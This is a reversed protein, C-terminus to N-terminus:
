KKYAGNTLVSFHDDLLLWASDFQKKGQTTRDKWLDIWLNQQNTQNTGEDGIDLM